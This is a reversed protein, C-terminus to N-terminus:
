ASVSESLIFDDEALTSVGSVSIEM